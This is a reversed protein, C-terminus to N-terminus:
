CGMLPKDTLWDYRERILAYLAENHPTYIRGLRAACPKPMPQPLQVNRTVYQPLEHNEVGLFGFVTEMTQRPNAFFREAQLVLINRSPFRLRYRGLQQAYKGRDVYAIDAHERSYFGHRVARETELNIAECFSANEREARVMMRYHSWARAAPERLLVIIKVKPYDSAIWDAAHPMFLYAPTAEGTLGDPFRDEYWDLDRNRYLRDYFHLEKQAAPRIEPHACIYEYLSTTGSRQAGVIIFSPTGM